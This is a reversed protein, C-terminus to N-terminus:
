RAIVDVERRHARLWRLLVGVKLGEPKILVYGVRVELCQQHTETKSDVPPMTFNSHTKVKLPFVSFLLYRLNGVRGGAFANNCLFAQGM